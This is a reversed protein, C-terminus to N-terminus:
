SPRGGHFIRWSIWCTGNIIVRPRGVSNILPAAAANCLVYVSGGKAGYMFTQGVDRSSWSAKRIIQGLQDQRMAM